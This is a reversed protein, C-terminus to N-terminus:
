DKVGSDFFHSYPRFLEGYVRTQVVAMDHRENFVFFREISKSQEWEEKHLDKNLLEAFPYFYLKQDKKDNKSDITLIMFPVKFQLSDIASNENDWGEVGLEKLGGLYAKIIADNQDNTNSGKNGKPTVSYKTGSKSITFSSAPDTPYEVSLSIIEEVTYDILHPDRLEDVTYAFRNRIGANMGPMRMAYPQKSGEMMMYTGGGERIDAGVMFVKSLEGSPGYISVKIGNDVISQYNTKSAAENPIYALSIYQLVNLINPVVYKSALLTDQVYWKGAKKTLSITTGNNQTMVIKGVDDPSSINFDRDELIKTIKPDTVKRNILTFAIAGLGLLLLLAIITNRM